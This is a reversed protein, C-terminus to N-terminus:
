QKTSKKQCALWSDSVCGTKIIYPTDRAAPQCKKEREKKNTYKISSKHISTKSDMTSPIVCKMKTTQTAYHTKHSTLQSM